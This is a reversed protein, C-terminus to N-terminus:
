SRFGIRINKTSERDAIPSFDDAELIFDNEISEHDSGYVRSAYGLIANEEAFGVM